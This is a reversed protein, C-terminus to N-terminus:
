KAAGEAARMVMAEPSEAIHRELRRIGSMGGLEERNTVDILYARGTHTVSLRCLRGLRYFGGACGM